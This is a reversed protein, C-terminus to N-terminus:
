VESQSIIKTYGRKECKKLIKAISAAKIGIKESIKETREEKTLSAFEKYIPIIRIMLCSDSLEFFSFPVGYASIVSIILTVSMVTYEERKLFIVTLVTSLLFIVSLALSLVLFILKDEKAKKM